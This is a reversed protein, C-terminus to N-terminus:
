EVQELEIQLVQKEDNWYQDKVKFRKGAEILVEHEYEFRSIGDIKRGTKHTIMFRVNENGQIKVDQDYSTSTMAPFSIIKGIEYKELVAEPLNVMRVVQSHEYIPLKQLAANIGDKASNFVMQRSKDFSQLGNLHANIERYAGTTYHHILAYEEFSLPYAAKDITEYEDRYGALTNDNKVWDGLAEALNIAPLTQTAGKLAKKFVAQAQM